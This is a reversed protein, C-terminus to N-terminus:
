WKHGNVCKLFERVGMEHDTPPTKCTPCEKRRANMVREGESSLCPFCLLRRQQVGNVNRILEFAVDCGMGCVSCVMDPGGM